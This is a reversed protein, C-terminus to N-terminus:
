ETELEPVEEALVDRLVAHVVPGAFGRRALAGALRRYRAQPDLGALGPLRKRALSRAVEFEAEPDLDDLAETVLEAAVGRSKLEQALVRRSRLRRPGAAVWDRAFAADDVLGVEGFRALVEEAAEDPVNRRALATRLEQVTRSRVTLQRLAIERAVQVPDGEPGADPDEPEAGGV